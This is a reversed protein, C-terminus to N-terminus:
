GSGSPRVARYTLWGFLLVLAMVLILILSNGIM